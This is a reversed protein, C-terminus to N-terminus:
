FDSIESSKRSKVMPDSNNLNNHCCCFKLYTDYLANKVQTTYGYALAYLIGQLATFILQIASMMPVDEKIVTKLFRNLTGPTMCILQIVPYKLLKWIYQKFLAIEEQSKLEKSL